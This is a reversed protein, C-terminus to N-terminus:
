SLRITMAHESVDFLNALKLVNKGYMSVYHNIKDIPMLIDAAFRNAEWEIENSLNSRYLANDTIGDGIKDRHLVYHGLEHAATFRQRTKSHKINVYILYQDTKEPDKLIQGSIDHDPYDYQGRFVRLGMERILGYIDVPITSLINAINARNNSSSASAEINNNM